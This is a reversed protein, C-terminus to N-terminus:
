LRTEKGKYFTAEFLDLGKVRGLIPPVDDSDAIAFPANFKLRAIKCTLHHIFVEAYAGPTIGRIELYRGSKIDKVLSEGITRPLISIDAGTDALVEALFLWNKKSESFIHLDILPRKTKGFIGSEKEKYPFTLRPM